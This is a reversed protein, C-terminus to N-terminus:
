NPKNQAKRIHDYQQEYYTMRDNGEGWLKKQFSVFGDFNTPCNMFHDYEFSDGMEKKSLKLGRIIPKMKEVAEFENRLLGIAFNTRSISGALAEQELALFQKERESNLSEFVLTIYQDVPEQNEDIAIMVSSEEPYTHFARATNTDDTYFYWIAIKRARFAEALTNSLCVSAGPHTTVFEKLKPSMMGYINTGDARCLVGSLTILSLVAISKLM